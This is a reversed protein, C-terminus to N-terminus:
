GHSSVRARSGPSTGAAFQPLWRAHHRLLEDVLAEIEDLTLDAATRPDLMVARYVTERCGSRAAEVTLRQVHVNSSILAALHSPLPGVRIPHIGFRDVACPVEVICDPPLNDIAGHNRVNAYIRRETGTELSHIIGAADEDSPGEPGVSGDPDNLAAKLRRFEEEYRQCRHLYEDIPVAYADVLDPRDRRLFYPVYEAFHYSSESVFYGFRRLVEFRVRDNSPVRGSAALALLQPYLDEGRHALRLFFAMHNIGAAQYELDEFPVRLYNALQRATRRVSHCLGVTRVGLDELAWQNIALPNAYNILWGEPCLRRMDAALDELFPITRLGRMIGGIGLTDGITQRIGFRKPIEFDTVTAPRFGGIQVLCIVYDAGDLARARDLTSTIRVKAGSTSVLRRAIGDIVELRERDIDMLRIEMEGLDPQQLIDRILVRAFVASGAGVFAIRIM